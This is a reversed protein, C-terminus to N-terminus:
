LFICYLGSPKSVVGVGEVDEGYIQITSLKRSLEEPLDAATYTTVEVERERISDHWEVSKVPMVHFMTEGDFTHTCYLYCMGGATRGKTVEKRDAKFDNLARIKSILGGDLTVQGYKDVMSLSDVLGVDNRIESQLANLATRVEREVNEIQQGTRRGLHSVINDITLPRIVERAAKIFNKYVRERDTPSTKIVKIHEPERQNNIFPSKIALYKVSSSEYHYGSYSIEASAYPFSFFVGARTNIRRNTDGVVVVKAKRFVPDRLLNFLARELPVEGMWDEFFIHNDELAQAWSDETEADKPSLLVTYNAEGEFLVDNHLRTVLDISTHIVSNM